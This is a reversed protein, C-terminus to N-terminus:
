KYKFWHAFRQRIAWAAGRSQDWWRSVYAPWVRQDPRLGYRTRMYVKSPLIIQRILRAKEKLPRGSLTALVHEFLTGKDAFRIARQRTTDQPVKERLTALVNEPVHTDFYHNCLTLARHVSYWWGLASTQKLVIDWNVDTQAILLHMDFFQRLSVLAEGHQLLAHAILYLLHAESRLITMGVSGNNQVTDTQTWFWALRDLPLLVDGASLLQFHLELVVSNPHASRLHYHHTMNLTLAERSSILHGNMEYFHYGLNEVVELAQKRQDFPVLIDLDGMARLVPQPYVTNALAIGKLWLAPIAADGLAANVESQSKQLFVYKLAVQRVAGALSDLLAESFDPKGNQKIVWLLMPALGHRHALAILEPWYEPPIDAPVNHQAVLAGLQRLAPSDEM